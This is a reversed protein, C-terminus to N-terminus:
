FERDDVQYRERLKQISKKVRDVDTKAQEGKPSAIGAMLPTGTLLQFFIILFRLLLTINETKGSQRAIKIFVDVPEVLLSYLCWYSVRLLQYDYLDFDFDLKCFREFVKLTRHLTQERQKRDQQPLLM